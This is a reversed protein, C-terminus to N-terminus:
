LTNWQKNSDTGKKAFTKNYDLIEQQDYYWKKYYAELIKEYM